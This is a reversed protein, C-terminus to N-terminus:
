ADRDSNVEELAEALTMPWRATRAPKLMCLLSADENFRAHFVYVSKAKM